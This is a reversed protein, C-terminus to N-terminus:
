PVVQLVVGQTPREGGLALRWLAKPNILWAALREFGERAQALARVCARLGSLCVRVLLPNPPPKALAAPRPTGCLVRGAPLRPLPLLLRVPATAAAQCNALVHSAALCAAGAKAGQGGWGM